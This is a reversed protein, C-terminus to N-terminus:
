LDLEIVVSDGSDNNDVMPNAQREKGDSYALYQDM